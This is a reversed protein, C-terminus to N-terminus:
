HRKETGMFIERRKIKEAYIGGEIIVSLIWAEGLLYLGWRDLESFYPVFCGDNSVRMWAVRGIGQLISSTLAFTSFRPALTTHFNKLRVCRIFSPFVVLRKRNREVLKEKIQEISKKSSHLFNWSKFESYVKYFIWKQM